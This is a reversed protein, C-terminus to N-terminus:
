KKMDGWCIEHNILNCASTIKVIGGKKLHAMEDSLDLKFIHKNTEDDYYDIHVNAAKMTLGAGRSIKSALNGITKFVVDPEVMKAVV